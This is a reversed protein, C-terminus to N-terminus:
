KNIGNTFDQPEIAIGSSKGVNRVGDRGQTSKLPTTGDSWGMTYVQVGPQDTRLDAKIGNWPSALTLVPAESGQPVDEFFWFHNYGETGGANTSFEPADRAHSLRRPSTFDMIGTSGDPGAVPARDGTPLGHPDLPLYRKAHPMHLTHELVTDTDPNRYAELNFYTHQTLMLPTKAEPSTAEMKIDWRGGDVVSYTVKCDVKGPFGQSAGEPDSIFFTISSDTVDLVDWFRWSWNNGGSHLTNGPGDNKETHYTKGDITYQAGGIRNVYRGPIANYVPHGPDVPYYSADDYGLVVDVENGHKDNVFLNTLTAGYPIFQARIGKVATGAGVSFSVSIDTISGM